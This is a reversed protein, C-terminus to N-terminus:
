KKAPSIAELVTDAMCQHGKNSLHLGDFSNEEPGVVKVFYRKPILYVGYKKCLKRQIRSYDPRFPPSPLEFMVITKARRRVMKLLKELNDRFEVDSLNRLIDNGGLEIIVMLDFGFITEARDISSSLTAGGVSLNVVKTGTKEELLEPWTKEEGKFGVGASISDGLVVIAQYKTDPLRPLQYYKYEASLSYICCFVLILRLAWFFAKIATAEIQLAFFLTFVCLLIVTFILPPVPVSSLIIFLIGIISLWRFVQKFLFIEWYESEKDPAKKFFKPIKVKHNHSFSILIAMILLINGTYFSQGSIFYQIIPNNM